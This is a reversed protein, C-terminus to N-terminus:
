KQSPEAGNEERKQRGLFRFQKDKSGDHSREKTQKVACVYRCGFMYVGMCM